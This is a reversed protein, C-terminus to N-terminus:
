HYPFYSSQCLVKKHEKLLQPSCVVVLLTCFHQAFLLSAHVGNTLRLSISHAGCHHVYLLPSCLYTFLMSYYFAYLLAKVVVSTFTRYFCSSMHTIVDSADQFLHFLMHRPVVTRFCSFSCYSFCFYSIHFCSCLDGNPVMPRHGTGEPM